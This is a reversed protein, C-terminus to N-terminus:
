KKLKGLIEEIRRRSEVSLNGQLAQRLEPEVLDGFETLERTAKDRATFTGDLDKILQPIKAGHAQRFDLIRTIEKRGKAISEMTKKNINLTESYDALKLLKELVETSAEVRPPPKPFQNAEVSIAQYPYWDPDKLRYDFLTQIIVNRTADDKVGSRLEDEYFKVIAPANRVQIIDWVFLGRKREPTWDPKNIHKHLRECAATSRMWIIATLASNPDASPLLQMELIDLLDSSPEQVEECASFFVSRRVGSSMFQNNKALKVLLDSSEKQRARVLTKLVTYLRLDTLAVLKANPDLRRSYEPDVLLSELENIAGSEKSKVLEISLREIEEPDASSRIADALKKTSQQVHASQPVPVQGTCGYIPLCALSAAAGIVLYVKKM